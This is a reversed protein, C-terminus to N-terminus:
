RVDPTKARYRTNFEGGASAPQASSASGSNGPLGKRAPEAHPIGTVDHRVPIDQSQLSLVASFVMGTAVLVISARRRIDNKASM